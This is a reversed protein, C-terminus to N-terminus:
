QHFAGTGRLRLPIAKITRVNLSINEGVAGDGRTAGRVLRGQQYLLSVAIGDLKPEVGYEVAELEPLQLFVEYRALSGFGILGARDLTEQSIHVRPGVATQFALDTPLDDVTAAIALRERGVVITDGVDVGLQTLVAPDVLAQGRELHRGWRGAPSTTVEGYYPYGPDIARVQFLRVNNSTPALIMSSATTVRATPVGAESLSDVVAQVAPALPKDDSLRANAGMLVDAEEQVSRSFDDRFSHISVLAAVALTISAMYVGVRRFGHRGERIALKWAFGVRLPAKM